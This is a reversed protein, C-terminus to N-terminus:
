PTSNTDSPSSESNKAAADVDLVTLEGVANFLAAVDPGMPMEALLTYDEKDFVLDNTGPVYAYNIVFQVANIRDGDESAQQRLETMQRVTPQRLEIDVNFFHIVKSRPKTNETSFIRSRLEANGTM